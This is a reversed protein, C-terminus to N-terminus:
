GRHAWHSLTSSPVSYCLSGETGWKAKASEGSNVVGLSVKLSFVDYCLFLCVFFGFQM